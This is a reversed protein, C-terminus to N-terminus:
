RIFRMKGVNTIIPWDLSDFPRFGSPWYVMFARGLMYRQPVVGLPLHLNRRLVREVRNWARSDASDNSNDGLVFYEGAQLTIPHGRTGTGPFREGATPGTSRPQRQMQTYYINRMLLLHRLVCPGTVDIFVRPTEQGSHSQMRVFAIAQQIAWPASYQLVLRGNFWFRIQHDINSMSLRYPVGPQLPPLRQLLPIKPSAIRVLAHIAPNWRYLFLSGNHALRVQYRNSRQGVTIRIASAPSKSLWVTHVFLDGVLHRGRLLRNTNYGIDNYLYSGNRRLFSLRGRAAARRASFRIVPGGTFWRGTFRPKYVATWPNTWIRGNRRLRGADRPYYDNDYVLQLMAREVVPPPRAVKGNIFVDGNAIEVTNGPLGVLRKIFNQKGRMPERFVVVDWRRPKTFWYLYKMVLIRDGNHVYPFAFTKSYSAGGGRLTETRYVIPQDPLDGVPIEYHCNPCQIHAPARISFPNTVEGNRLRRLGQGAIWQVDVDANINFRYGCQPCVVRFHAGNLTPAMSGTPIVFAEVCFTRFTFALILALLVTEITDRIGTPHSDTGRGPPAGVSIPATSGPLLSTPPAATEPPAAPPAAQPRNLFPNEDPNM